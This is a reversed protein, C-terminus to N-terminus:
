RGLQSIEAAQGGSRLPGPSWWGSRVATGTMLTPAEADPVRPQIVLLKGWDTNWNEKLYTPVEQETALIHLWGIPGGADAASWTKSEEALPADPLLRYQPVEAIGNRIAFPRVCPHVFGVPWDLFVPPMPAVLDTLSSLVPVRPASFALWGEDTVDADTAILRVADAGAAARGALGLRYDRWGPENATARGGISIQDVVRFGRETRHAFEAVLPTTSSLKGAVSIVVPARGQRAAVPLAYWTTRLNGTGPGDPSFSSWIPIEAGGLGSPPADVPNDPNDGDSGSKTIRDGRTEAGQKDARHSDASHSDASHSDAPSLRIFPFPNLEFGRQLPIDALLTGRLPRLAGARRDPEVSVADTLNCSHGTIHAINAAAMSYGDRQKHMAKVMAGVEALVLLGCFVALPASGIRLARRGQRRDPLPPAPQTPLPAGPEHRLGEIVAILGALAAGVILLTSAQVGHVSPPKDFWPVGYQSVYWPANPGTSSMAMIVLLGSLFWWRNRASRLVTSSTALATLAALAAGISALAGFHHTWKTPTLALLALSAGTTGILRRSPGLGAGPIGGRRLLVVLSTGLCLLLLLVPFRRALAGDPMNRFLDQYRIPEQFWSLNPGIATRIRTAELVGALTQDAFSVVLVLLGAGLIPGIVASWGSVAAHQRLLRVLPRLAVLLPAMAIFGTPTAAVTFAAALLGLALPLVRRTAVAREVACLVLISGIAVEPELRLGNNYPLWFALFVAAAAWGAAASRRVERGLRPMVERSILMWSLVGMVFSPLRLWPPVTSIQAWFAYLEYPWSFPAEPVNFWRYYNGVYGMESSTRIMTLIYGDDSTIGGIVVWVALVAIVTADRGTPRWWGSPLLRPARRGIQGDLRHVLVLSILVALVALAIAALKVPHPTSQFRTDATIRVALGTVPDRQASLASYIGTVQPRVDQDVKVFRTAGASATTGKAGSSIKIMCQAVPAPLTSLLINGLAQGRSILILKGDAVELVMGVAAGETSGPPTTALLAGPQASRANVSTAAACPITATLNQPQFTVLPANVPALDGARPWTIVATDQIVPLLPVAVALLAGLLGLMAAAVRLPRPARDGGGGAGAHEAAGDSTRSLRRSVEIHGSTLM